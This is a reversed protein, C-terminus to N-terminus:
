KVRASLEAEGCGHCFCESICAEAQYAEVRHEEDDRKCGGKRLALRELLHPIEGTHGWARADVGGCEKVKRGAEVDQGIDENKAEGDLGQNADVAGALFHVSKNAHKANAGEGSDNGDDSQVGDNDVGGGDIRESLGNEDVEPGNELDVNADDAGGRGSQLGQEVGLCKSLRSITAATARWLPRSVVVM